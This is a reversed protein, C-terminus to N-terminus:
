AASRSQALRREMRFAERVMAVALPTLIQFLTNISQVMGAM